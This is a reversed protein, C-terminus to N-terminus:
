FAFIFFLASKGKGKGCEFFRVVMEGFRLGAEWFRSSFLAAGNGRKGGVERSRDKGGRERGGEIGVGWM